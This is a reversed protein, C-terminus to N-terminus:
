KKNIKLQKRLHRVADKWWKAYSAMNELQNEDLKLAVKSLELLNEALYVELIHEHDALKQFYLKTKWDMTNGIKEIIDEITM